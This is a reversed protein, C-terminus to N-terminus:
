VDSIVSAAALECWCCVVCPTGCCGIDDAVADWSDMMTVSSPNCLLNNM